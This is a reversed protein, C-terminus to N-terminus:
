RLMALYPLNHSPTSIGVFDLLSTQFTTGLYFALGQGAKPQFGRALLLRRVTVLAAPPRPWGPWSGCGAARRFFLTSCDSSPTTPILM